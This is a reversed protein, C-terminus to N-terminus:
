PRSPESSRRLSEEWAITHAFRYAPRFPAVAPALEARMQAIMALADGRKQDVKNASLWRGIRGVDPVGAKALAQMIADYTRSKYFLSKAASIM